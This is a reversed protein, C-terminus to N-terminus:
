GEPDEFFAQVAAPRWIKWAAEVTRVRFADAQFVANVLNPLDMKIKPNRLQWIQTRWTVLSDEAATAAKSRASSQIIRLGANRTNVLDACMSYWQNTNERILRSGLQTARLSQSGSRAM